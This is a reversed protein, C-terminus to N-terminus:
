TRRVVPLKALLLKAASCLVRKVLVATNRPVLADEGYVEGTQANSLEIMFMDRNTTVINQAKVIEARLEAVAIHPGDFQVSHQANSSKFKYYISM